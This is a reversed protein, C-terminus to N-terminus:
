EKSVVFRGVTDELISALRALELSSSNMDQTRTVTDRAAQDVQSINSTIERAGEAVQDADAAITDASQSASSVSAAIEAIVPAQENMAQSIEQSVRNVRDIVRTIEEVGTVADATSSQMQEIRRDIEETAQATQRALEKVENAVVAFGKGAEGAGAAEITANLALLNTQDAIDGITDLVLGIERSAANLPEIQGAARRAGEMAEDAIRLGLQCNETVGQISTSMEEAAAAISTMSKSMQGASAAMGGIRGAIARASESVQESQESTVEAGSALERSSSSIEESAAALTSSTETTDRVVDHLHSTMTDFARGLDGMEDSRDIRVSRTLDGQAVSESEEVLKRIPPMFIVTLAAYGAGAGLLLLGLAIAAFLLRSGAQKADVEDLSRVLELAGVREGAEGTWEDHCDYCEDTTRVTRFFRVANADDDVLAYEDLDAAVVAQLAHLETATFGDDEDTESGDLFRVEAGLDAIRHVLVDRGEGQHLSIWAIESVSAVAQAQEVYAAVADRRSSRSQILVVVALMLFLFVMFATLIQSRIGFRRQVTDSPM